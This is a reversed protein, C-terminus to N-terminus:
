IEDPHLWRFSVITFRRGFRANNPNLESPLTEPADSADVFDPNRQVIAECWAKAEINGSGDLAEGYSRIRFTDSRASLVSGIVQLVDAQTLWGPIGTSRFGQEPAFGPDTLMERDALMSGTNAPNGDQSFPAWVDPGDDHPNNTLLPNTAIPQRPFGPPYEMDAAPKGDSAGHISLRNDQPNLSVFAGSDDGPVMNLGSDDIASQLAGSRSLHDDDEALDILARNVFHSISVFPGRLRVQRVIEGALADIQGDTVRRFGSYSDDGDGSPEPLKAQTPQNLSRPFMAAEQPANSEAPHKLNRNSALMAKWAEKSTSNVNFGGEVWLNSAALLPDRLDDPAQGPLIETIRPNRPTALGIAPVTSIFFSDWLATNLLYSLDYYRSEESDHRRDNILLYDYRAQSSLGRKVFLPAYSNGLANGPQHAISVFRDDATLDAHQFQALSVIEDPVDYLITQQTGSASSHGWRLKPLALNRTFATGTEGGPVRYPLSSLDDSVAMFYPPATYSAIPRSFHRARVNFDMFTRLTSNRRGLQGSPLLSGYDMGPQSLQFSYLMLPIPDTMQLADEKTVKREVAKFLVNNVDFSGIRSLLESDSTRLELDVASTKGLALIHLRALSNFRSITRTRPNPLLICHNFDAPSSELFPSLPVSIPTFDEARNVASGLTYAQSGGAALRGAPITFTVGGFVSPKEEDEFSFYKPWSNGEGTDSSDGNGPIRNFSERLAMQVGRTQFVELELDNDWQIAHSYPNALAVAIKGCAHIHYIDVQGAVPEIKAGFLLRLDFVVPAIHAQDGDNGATVKLANGSIPRLARLRDWTPGQIGPAVTAPLINKGTMPANPLSANAPTAPFGSELYPTLDTRLGGHVTDTHLSRSDMTLSHFHQPVTTLVSPVGVSITQVTFLRELAAEEPSGREPYTEMGDVTEWGGGRAGLTFETAPADPDNAVSPLNARAKVGEDGVWWGYRGGVGNTGDLIDVLPVTVHERQSDGASGSGVVTVGSGLAVATSDPNALDQRAGSVLWGDFRAEPTKAYIESADNANSWVGTWHRSGHTSSEDMVLDAAATVRRDDGALEQLRSIACLLGMRANARAEAEAKGQSTNRLAVSSLGLMGLALISLLIM